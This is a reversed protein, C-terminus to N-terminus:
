KLSYKFFNNSFINAENIYSVVSIQGGKKTRRFQRKISGVRQEPMM